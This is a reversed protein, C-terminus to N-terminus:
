EAFREAGIGAAFRVLAFSRAIRRRSRAHAAVIARAGLVHLEAAARASRSDALFARIPRIELANESERAFTERANVPRAENTM